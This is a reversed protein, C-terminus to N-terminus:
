VNVQYKYLQNERTPMKLGPLLEIERKEEFNGPNEVIDQQVEDLYKLVEPFNAYKEKLENIRPSVTFMTTEHEIKQLEERTARDAQRIERLVGSLESVLIEEKAKIENKAEDTLKEMDEEALPKGEILPVFVFGSPTHKLVFSANKAKEELQSILEEKRKQFKRIVANRQEEYVKSEFAKPLDMKLEEILSEMDKRFVEAMGPPFRLCRPNDPSSFNYVYCWDDPTPKTKAIEKVAAEVSTTRGSGPIGSVYINYGDQEMQLGFELAKAAREQGIIGEIPPIDKTTQCDLWDLNCIARAKEPPIPQLAM